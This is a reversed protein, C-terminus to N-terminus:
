RAVSSLPFVLGAEKMIVTLSVSFGVNIAMGVAM